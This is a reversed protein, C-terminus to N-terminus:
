SSRGPQDRETGESEGCHYGDFRILVVARIEGTGLAGVLGSRELLEDKVDPLCHLVSLMDNADVPRIPVAFANPLKVNFPVHVACAVADHVM